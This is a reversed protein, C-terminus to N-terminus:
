KKDIHQLIEQKMQETSGKVYLSIGCIGGAFVLCQGLVWLVSNDIIGLPNVIFGAITLGFGILLAIGAFWYSIKDKLTM